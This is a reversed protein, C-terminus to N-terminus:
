KEEESVMNIADQLKKCDNFICDNKLFSNLIKNKWKIKNRVYDNMWTPDKGSFTISKNPIANIFNNTLVETM